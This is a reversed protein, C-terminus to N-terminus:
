LLILILKQQILLKKGSKINSQNLRGNNQILTIGLIFTKDLMGVAKLFYGLVMLLFLPFIINFSLILNEM